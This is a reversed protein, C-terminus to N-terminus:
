FPKWTLWLVSEEYVQCRLSLKMPIWSLERSYCPNPSLEICNNKFEEIADSILYHNAKNMDIGDHFNKDHFARTEDLEKKRKRLYAKLVYDGLLEILDYDKLYHLSSM